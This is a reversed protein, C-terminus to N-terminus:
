AQDYTKMAECHVVPGGAAIACERSCDLQFAEVQIDYRRRDMSQLTHPTQESLAHESLCQLCCATLASALPTLGRIGHRHLTLPMSISLLHLLSSMEEVLALLNRMHTASAM